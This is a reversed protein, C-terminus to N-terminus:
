HAPITCSRSHTSKTAHPPDHDEHPPDNEKRPLGVTMTPAQPKLTKYTFCQNQPYICTYYHTTAHTIQQHLVLCSSYSVPHTVHAISYYMYMTTSSQCDHSKHIPKAINREHRQNIRIQQNCPTTDLVSAQRKRTRAVYIHHCTTSSEASAIAARCLCPRGRRWSSQIASVCVFIVRGFIGV